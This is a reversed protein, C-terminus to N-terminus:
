RSTIIQIDIHETTWGARVKVPEAFFGFAEAPRYPEISGPNWQQYPAPPKSGSPIFASVTYNGPPLEPFIYRFTGNKDCRATTSFTSPSGSVKAEIVAYMGSAHGTGSISGTEKKEAARFQSVLPKAKDPQDTSGTFNAAHVSVSYSRGPQFGNAPKLAFTRPDIKILSFHLNSEAGSVRESLTIAKSLASEAVPASLKILVVKGLSPWALDLYAPNSRNEPAITVSVPQNGEPRSSAYFPITRITGKGDDPIYSILYPENPQLKGTVILFEREYPSHNKSFWSVAPILTQSIAHRIQLKEPNFSAINLPRGFKIELLQRGLPTCSVIGGTDSHVGQLRFMLSSSGAYVVSANSVGVEESKYNYRLDYNRNNVAFIRYAGPGINNFSFSGSANAQILYDPERTLLNETATTNSQESFALLLANTAPSFDANIVKGSIVGKDIVPGTSFAITNPAPFTRGQNDRLNKDLTIVYTCNNKLPKFLTIDVEKGKVAIDYGGISPSFLLGNLLQRGPIYHNFTLHLRDTSVNVSSPAPNSFVVQLPTTDVPGGTPPRDSACGGAFWLLLIFFRNMIRSFIQM